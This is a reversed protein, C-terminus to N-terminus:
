KSIRLVKQQCKKVRAKAQDIGLRGFFLFLSLLNTARTMKQRMIEVGSLLQLMHKMLLSKTERVDTLCYDQCFSFISLGTIM